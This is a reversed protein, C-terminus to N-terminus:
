FESLTWASRSAHRFDCIVVLLSIALTVASTMWLGPRAAATVMTALGMLVLSLFFLRQCFAQYVSGESLRAVWASTMGLLQVGGFFWLSATTDLVPMRACELVDNSLM